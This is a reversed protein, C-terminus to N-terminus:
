HELCLWGKSFSRVDQLVDLGIAGVEFVSWFLVHETAVIISVYGRHEISGITVWPVDKRGSVVVVSESWVFGVADFAGDAIEFQFISVVFNCYEQVDIAEIKVFGATFNLSETVIVRLADARAFPDREVMIEDNWLLCISVVTNKQAPRM